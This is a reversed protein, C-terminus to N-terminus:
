ASLGQATCLVPMHEGVCCYGQARSCVPVHFLSQAEAKELLFLSWSHSSFIVLMQTPPTLQRQGWFRMALANGSLEGPAECELM